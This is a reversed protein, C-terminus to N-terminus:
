YKGTLGKNVGYKGPFWSAMPQIPVTTCSTYWKTPKSSSTWLFRTQFIIFQKFFIKVYSSSSSNTTLIELTLITMKAHFEKLSITILPKCKFRNWYRVCMYINTFSCFVCIDFCFLTSSDLLGNERMSILILPKWAM